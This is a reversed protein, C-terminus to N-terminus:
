DRGVNDSFSILTITVVALHTKLYPSPRGILIINEVLLQLCGVLPQGRTQTNISPLLPIKKEL